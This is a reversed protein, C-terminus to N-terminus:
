SIGALHYQELLVKCAELLAATSDASEVQHRIESPTEWALMHLGHTLTIHSYSKLFTGIRKEVVVIHRPNVLIKDKPRNCAEKYPSLEILM